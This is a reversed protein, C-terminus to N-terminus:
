ALPYPQQGARIAAHWADHQAKGEPSLDCRCISAQPVGMAALADRARREAATHGHRRALVAVIVLQEAEPSM